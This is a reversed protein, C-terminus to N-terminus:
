ALGGTAQRIARISIAENADYTGPKGDLRQVGWDGSHHLGIVRWAMDEFVPSGSSGPETPTRYHVLRENCGVMVNDQLSFELERGGPHGIIYVHAPPVTMRVAAEHLPMPDAKPAEKLLLFCADFQSFPSSWVVSDIGLISGEIQFHVRAADPALAGDMPEKDVVHANTVVVPRDPDKPFFDRSKVLWGTGHGKGNLREIRAVSAARSLGTQYWELTQMRDDGFVKELQITAGVVAGIERAVNQPQVSISGGERRLLAARLVPLITSGPPADDTLGWVERLQRLTSNVEFADAGPHLSYELARAEAKKHNGLAINAELATAVGFASLGEPNEAEMDALTALIEQALPGPDPLGGLTLQDRRAREVLAVVNIGHWLNTKPALRYVYSYESIARELFLRVAPSSPSEANVYLQKYVRGTLGRAEMEELRSSSDQLVGQLVLEAAWLIGQDIL